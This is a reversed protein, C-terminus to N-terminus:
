AANKRGLSGHFRLLKKRLSQVIKDQAKIALLLQGDLFFSERLEEELRKLAKMEAKYQASVSFYEKVKFSYGKKNSM